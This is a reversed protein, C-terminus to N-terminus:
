FLRCVCYQYGPFYGPFDGEVSLWEYYGSINRCIVIMALVFLFGKWYYEGM